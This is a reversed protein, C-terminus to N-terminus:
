RKYKYVSEPEQRIGIQLGAPDPGKFLRVVRKFNRPMNRGPAARYAEDAKGAVGGSRGRPLWDCTQRLFGKENVTAM